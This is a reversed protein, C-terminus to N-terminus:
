IRILALFRRMLGLGGEVRVRGRAMMALAARGRANMPSPVGGVLPSVMLHILDPLTGEIRLDPAVAPGDEVLVAREGFVIRIPPYGEEMALEVEARLAQAQEPRQRVGREVVAMVAPALGGELLAGLRVQPPGPRQDSEGVVRPM